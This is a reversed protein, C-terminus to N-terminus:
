SISHVSSSRFRWARLSRLRRWATAERFRRRSFDSARSASFADSLASFSASRASTWRRRTCFARRTSGTLTFAAAAITESADPGSASSFAAAHSPM